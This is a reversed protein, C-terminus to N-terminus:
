EIFVLLSNVTHTEVLSGSKKIKGNSPRIPEEQQKQQWIISQKEEESLGGIQRKYLFPHKSYLANFDEGKLQKFRTHEMDRVPIVNAKWKLSHNPQSGPTFGSSASQEPDQMVSLATIPKLMMYPLRLSLKEPKDKLIGTLRNLQDSARLGKTALEAEISCRYIKMKTDEFGDKKHHQAYAIQGEQIREDECQELTVPSSIDFVHPPKKYLDFDLNHHKWSWRNRNLTPELINAHLVNEKWRKTLDELRAEDPKKPHQNCELDTRVGPYVFGDHTLWSDKSKKALANEEEKMDVPDVTASVYDQSYTFRQKPEKALEQRLMKKALESSNLSQCGYNHVPKGNAPVHSITKELPKGFKRQMQHVADINHQIHDPFSSEQERKWQVYKENYNDLPFHFGSTKYHKEEIGAASIPYSPSLLPVTQTFLMEKTLPIGFERSMLNVMEVSPLLDGHIVARLKRAHRIYDLRSLAQFCPSPVMDRVYLLPHQVISSLTEHLQIHYLISDLDEYLRKHFSMASNYMIELMGDQNQFSRAPVEEWLQKIGKDKLGELVFLHIEGDLIHFGTIVDLTDNGKEEVKLKMKLLCEQILYLPYEELKLARANIQTIKKILEHLLPKRDNDFVYIIRGYPCDDAESIPTLPVAIDVRIKLIANSEIYHGMRLPAGQPGDVSGPVGMIKGSKSDRQYGIPDPALCSHIPVSINLSKEGLLLDSLSVKAIGYPNWMKDKETFPNYVTRKSAVLGVNSLKEDEPESGFLAPKKVFDEIKRDRDHVEIELPPGQLYERLKGPSINETLIVNVDKFYIHTGHEQDHTQHIPQDHFKYRCYVPVCKAKLVEIPVPTNPLCTASNIRIVLPNLERKQEESLLPTELALTVLGNVINQFPEKLCSTVSGDGALLPLLNLEITFSKKIEPAHGIKKNQKKDMNSNINGKASQSKEKGQPTLYSTKQSESKWVDSKHKNASGGELVKEDPKGADTPLTPLNGIHSISRLSNNDGARSHLPSLPPLAPIPPLKEVVDIGAPKLVGTGKNHDPLYANKLSAFSRPPQGDEYLKRQKLVLVNTASDKDEDGNAPKLAKPKDLKAKSSVKDKTNYVTCVPKHSSLNQLFQKTVNFNVVQTWALWLKDGEQWPKIVKTENEMYLKAIAGFLVVDAKIPEPDDPFLSYELHYYGQTKPSPGAKNPQKLKANGKVSENLQEKGSPNSIALATTMTFAVPHSSDPPKKDMSGERIESTTTLSVTAASNEKIGTAGEPETKHAITEIAPLSARTPDIAGNQQKIQSELESSLDKQSPTKSEHPTSAEEPTENNAGDEIGKTDPNDAQPGVPMSTVQGEMEETRLSPVEM